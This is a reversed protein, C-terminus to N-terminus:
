VMKGNIYEKATNSGQRGTEKTYTGTTLYWRVMDTKKAWKLIDLMITGLNILIAEKDLGSNIKWNVRM